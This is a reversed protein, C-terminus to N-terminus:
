ITVGTKTAVSPSFDITHHFARIVLFIRPDSISATKSGGM